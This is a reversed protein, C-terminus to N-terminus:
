VNKRISILNNIERKFYKKRSWIFLLLIAVIIYRLILYKYTYLFVGGTFLFVISILIIKKTSYPKEGEMDSECIKNMFMYHAVAFIMYCFLTTYGAVWYGLLELLVYNLFINLIAGIITALSILYTKRFYIEFCNFFGCLFTFYVSMAIPPIIWIAEYYEAPAFVAVVEPAFAIFVINLIAIFEISFYAVSELSKIDNEKIKKYSWPELSQFLAICFINMIQAVAYGLSYIGAASESIINAIMIRDASGLIVSSLYHPILPVAMVLAYHWYRLSFFTKGNRMDAVFLWIYALTNVIVMSLIRATVKDDANVVMFIGLVPTCISVVITVVVIKKYQLLVRQRAGWLSYVASTWILVFMAIIEVPSMTILQNLIDYFLFWVIGWGLAMTLVLGQMSSAFVDRNREFRILGSTFVDNFLSLTVFVTLMGMWSSFVNFQGYEDTNFIRTFIPTSITSIGKQLFICFTYWIFAKVYRSTSSYKLLLKKVM